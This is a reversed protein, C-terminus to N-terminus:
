SKKSSTYSEKLNENLNYHMLDANAYKNYYRNTIQNTSGDFLSEKYKVQFYLSKAHYYLIETNSSALNLKKHIEANRVAKLCEQKLDENDNEMKVNM